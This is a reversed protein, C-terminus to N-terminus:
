GCNLIYLSLCLWGASKQAIAARAEARERKVVFDWVCFVAIMM